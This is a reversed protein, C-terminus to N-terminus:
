YIFENEDILNQWMGINELISKVTIYDQFTLSQKVNISIRQINLSSFDNLTKNLNHINTIELANNRTSGAFTIKNLSEVYIELKSNDWLTNFEKFSGISDSLQYVVDTFELFGLDNRSTNHCTFYNKANENKHSSNNKKDQLFKIQPMVQKLTLRKDVNILWNTTSILNKRNLEISDPMSENFFLYAHSIDNVETIKSNKIEPLQVVKKEGCSVTLLIFCLLILKKM